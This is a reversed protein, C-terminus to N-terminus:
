RHGQDGRVNAGGLCMQRSIRTCLRSLWSYVSIPLHNSCQPLDPVSIDPERSSTLSWECPSPILVPDPDPWLTLSKAGVTRSRKYVGVVYLVKILFNLSSSLVNGIRKKKRVKIIEKMKGVEFELIFATM